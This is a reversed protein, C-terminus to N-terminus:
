GFRQPLERPRMRRRGRLSSRAASPLTPDVHLSELKGLMAWLRSDLADSGLGLTRAVKAPAIGALLMLFIAQEDEDLRQGLMAVVPQPISPLLLRGGAVTRIAACLEQGVGAKSALGDAGAVVCGAALVGDSYASYILVRPPRPLRKLKRCVWLGSRGRLQYDVVAVDVEEHEAVSLVAEATGVADVLVFDPEDELVARLGMRVAPHDDVLLLRRHARVSGSGDAPNTERRAATEPVAIM